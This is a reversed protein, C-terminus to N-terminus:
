EAVNALEQVRGQVFEKFSVSAGRDRALKLFDDLIRVDQKLQVIADEIDQRQLELAAGLCAEAANFVAQIEDGVTREFGLVKGQAPVAQQLHELIAEVQDGVRRSADQDATIVFM